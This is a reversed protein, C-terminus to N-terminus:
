GPTRFITGHTSLLDQLQGFSCLPMMDGSLLVMHTCDGNFAQWFLNITAQVLSAQGWSTDVWKNTIYVNDLGTNYEDVDKPHVYIAYKNHTIDRFFSKWILDEHQIEQLRVRGKSSGILFCFGIKM